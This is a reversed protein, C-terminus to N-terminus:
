LKKLFETLDEFSGNPYQSIDKGSKNIICDTILFVKMGVAQAIMDEEVDNGVMLCEEPSVKLAKLISKYYDPNPKCYCSNEYTTCLEFDEAKLGAWHIRAKTAIEPFIPNTALATRYGMKKIEDICKEAQPNYGCVDKIREFENEYFEDFIINDKLAAAGYKAAFLNWFVAENTNEGNNKIMAGTGAWITKILEEADYGYPAAKKALGGFYAKAFTDQEMPLLTGDLDFLIVKIKNKM